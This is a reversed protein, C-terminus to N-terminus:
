GSREAFTDLFNRESQTLSATGHEAIKEMIRDLEARNVEHLKTRDIRQWRTMDARSFRSARRPESNREFGAGRRGGSSSGSTCSGGAFGGLHAFHAVDGGYGGFGGLLAIGTTVAVLVWVEVPLVGWIYIRDRPWYRAYGIMVGFVAGSAGVIAEYPTFVYSLLGGTIGSIFYLYAFQNGQLHAELRPGFIVLSLMNFFLHWVGAHLFVYTVLTWPRTAIAAPFLVMLNALTPSNITVFYAVVTAVVIRTVWPTLQMSPTDYRLCRGPDHGSEAPGEQPGPPVGKLAQDHMSGLDVRGERGRFFLVRVIGVAGLDQSARAQELRAPQLEGFPEDLDPAGAM